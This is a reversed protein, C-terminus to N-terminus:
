AIVHWTMIVYNFVVSTNNSQIHENAYVQQSALEHQVARKFNVRKMKAFNGVSTRMSISRQLKYDAAPQMVRKAFVQARVSM